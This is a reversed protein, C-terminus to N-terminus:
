YFKFNPAIIQIYNINKAFGNNAPKADFAPLKKNDFALFKKPRFM